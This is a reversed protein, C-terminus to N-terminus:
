WWWGGCGCANLFVICRQLVYPEFVDKCPFGALLLDVGPPQDAALSADTYDITQESTLLSANGFLHKPAVLDKIFDRKNKDMESSFSHHVDFDTPTFETELNEKVVEKIWKLVLCPSDTGACPTGFTLTGINRCFSWMAHQEKKSLRGVMREILKKCYTSPDHLEADARESGPAVEVKYYPYKDLGSDVQQPTDAAQKMMESAATFASKAEERAESLKAQLKMIKKPSGAKSGRPSSNPSAKEKSGRPSSM